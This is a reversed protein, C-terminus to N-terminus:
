SRPDLAALKDREERQMVQEANAAAAREFSDGPDSIRVGAGSDTGSVPGSRQQIVHTLEHAITTRGTTTSPDFADRQFVVESGVTYARAGVARASEHARTGTHFRVDAFDAGLRSEMDRRLGAEMPTGGGHGVVDLVPSREQEILGTVAANGAARQLRLLGATGLVTAPALVASREPAAPALVASRTPAATVSRTPGPVAVRAPSSPAVRQADHDHSHM